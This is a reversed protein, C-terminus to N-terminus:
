DSGFFKYCDEYRKERIKNLYEAVDTPLTNDKSDFRKVEEDWMERYTEDAEDLCKALAEREVLEEHEEELKELEEKKLKEKEWELQAEWEAKENAPRFFAYYYILSFSIAIVMVIACVMLVVKFTKNIDKSM